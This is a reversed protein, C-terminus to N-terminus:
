LDLISDILNKNYYYKDKSINFIGKEWKYYTSRDTDFYKCANAISYNNKIRWLKLKNSFDSIILKSYGENCIYNLDLVKSLKILTNKTPITNDLEYISIDSRRIGSLKSLDSQSLGKRLREIKLRDGFTEGTCSNYLTEYFNFSFFM